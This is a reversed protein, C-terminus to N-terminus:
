VPLEHRAGHQDLVELDQEGKVKREVVQPHELENGGGDAVSGYVTGAAGTVLVALLAAVPRMEEDVEDAGLGPQGRRVRDLLAAVQYPLSGCNTRPM